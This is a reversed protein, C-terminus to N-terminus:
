RKVEPEPEPPFLPVAFIAVTISSRSASAWKSAEGGGASACRERLGTLLAEVQSKTYVGERGRCGERPDHRTWCGDCAPLAAPPDADPVVVPTARADKRAAVARGSPEYKTCICGLEACKVMYDVSRHALRVHGCTACVEQSPPPESTEGSVGRANPYRAMFMQIAGKYTTSHITAVISGGSEDLGGVTWAQAPSPEPSAREKRDPESHAATGKARYAHYDIQMQGFASDADVKGRALIFAVVTNALTDARALRETLRAVERDSEIAYQRHADREREAAKRNERERDAREDHVAAEACEEVLADVVRLVGAARDAEPWTSLIREVEEHPSESM